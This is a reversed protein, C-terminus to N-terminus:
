HKNLEVSQRWLQQRANIKPREEGVASTGVAADEKNKLDVSQL